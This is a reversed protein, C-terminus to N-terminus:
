LATLGPMGLLDLMWMYDISLFLPHFPAHFLLLCGWVAALSYFQHVYHIIVSLFITCFYEKCVDIIEDIVKLVEAERFATDVSQGSVIDFNAEGFIKPQDRLHDVRYVNDFIFTKREPRVQRALLMANPLILDYPLQMVKGTPNVFQVVDEPSYYSHYPFLAPSDTREVAGHRHCIATLRAKVMAQLDLDNLSSRSMARVDELLTVAQMPDQIAAMKMEEAKEEKAFLSNIFHSRFHSARDNLLRRATRLSEDEAKVPIEGSDLLELSSPRQSPKYQVLSM